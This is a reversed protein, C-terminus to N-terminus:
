QSPLVGVQTRYFGTLRTQQQFLCDFHPRSRAPLSPLALSLIKFKPWFYYFDPPIGSIKRSPPICTGCISQGTCQPFRGAAFVRFVCWTINMVSWTKKEPFPLYISVITNEDPINDPKLNEYIVDSIELMYLLAIDGYKSWFIPANSSMCTTYVDIAQNSRIPSRILM